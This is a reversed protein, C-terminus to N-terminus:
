ENRTKKDQLGVSCAFQSCCVSVCARCCPLQTDTCPSARMCFSACHSHGACHSHTHTHTHERTHREVSALKRGKLATPSQGREGGTQRHREVQRVRKSNKWSTAGGRECRMEGKGGKNQLKTKGNRRGGIEEEAGHCSGM